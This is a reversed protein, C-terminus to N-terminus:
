AGFAPFSIVDAQESNVKTEDASTHEKGHLVENLKQLSDFMMTTITMCAGMGKPHLERKCDIQFQLGRLRRQASEPASQILREIEQKRIRELKEPDSKALEMLSDVSPFKNKM